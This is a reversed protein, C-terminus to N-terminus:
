SAVVPTKSEAVSDARLTRRDTSTGVLPRGEGAPGGQIGADIEEDRGRDEQEGGQNPGAGPRGTRWLRARLRRPRATPPTEFDLRITSTAYIYQGYSNTSPNGAPH